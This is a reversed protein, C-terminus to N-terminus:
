LRVQVRAPSAVVAEIVKGSRDNRVSIAQGKTGGQLATGTTHISMGPHNLEITVQQGNEVLLRPEFQHGLLVKGAAINQRLRLNNLREPDRFYDGQLQGLDHRQWRWDTADLIQKRSLAHKAVLIDAELAIKGPLHIKWKSGTECSVQLSVRGVKRSAASFGVLLPSQCAKLRLRSDSKSLSLTPKYGTDFPYHAVFDEAAMHIAALSQWNPEAVAPSMSGATLAILLWVGRRVAASQRYKVAPIFRNKSM